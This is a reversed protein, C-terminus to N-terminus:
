TEEFATNNINTVSIIPGEMTSCKEKKNWTTSTQSVINTTVALM